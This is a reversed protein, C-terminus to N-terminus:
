PATPALCAKDLAAIIDDENIPKEFFETANLAALRRKEPGDSIKKGTIMFVPAASLGPQERLREVFEYGDMLPMVIDVCFASIHRAAAKSLADHGDTASEVQYGARTLLASLRNRQLASDDVVLITHDARQLTAADTTIDNLPAQAHLDETLIEGVNLILVLNSDSLITCGMMFKIKSVLSGFQKILVDQRGKVEDVLIGIYRDGDALVIITKEVQNFASPTFNLLRSLTSVTVTMGRYNFVLGGGVRRLGSKSVTLIEVVNSVPFAFQHGNESALLIGVIALTLPLRLTIKTGKGKETEIDVTGQVQTIATKVVDMGVGRGSLETVNEASSLGPHFTLDLIDKESFSEAAAPLVLERELAKALITELNIGRGDDKIEIVANSGQYYASLEIKGIESKGQSLREEPSEFGHDLSNRIIHLLPDALQNILLKDLETSAGSLILNAKKGTKRAMDRVQAPFRNFLQAVPVMRFSMAGTQLRGSLGELDEINKQLQKRTDDIRLMTLRFEEPFFELNRLIESDLIDKIKKLSARESSLGSIRSQGQRGTPEILDNDLDLVKQKLSEVAEFVLHFKATGTLKELNYFSQTLVHLDNQLRIRTIFVESATNLVDDLKQAPIRITEDQPIGPTVTGVPQIGAPAPESNPEANIQPEAYPQITPKAPDTSAYLHQILPRIPTDLPREEIVQRILHGLGAVALMLGDILNSSINLRKSRMEDLITEVEHALTEIKKIELLRAGGKITHVARFIQNIVELPSQTTELEILSLEIADVNDQAEQTFEPILDRKDAGILLAEPESDLADLRRILAESTQALAAPEVNRSQADEHREPEETNRRKVDAAQDQTLTENFETLALRLYGEAERIIDSIDAKGDESEEWDKLLTLTNEFLLQLLYDMSHHTFSHHYRGYDLIFVIIQMLQRPQMIRLVDLMGFILYGRRYAMDYAEQPTDPKVKILTLLDAYAHETTQILKELLAMNSADLHPNTVNKEPIDVTLIAPDYMQM